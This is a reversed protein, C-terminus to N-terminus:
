CKLFHTILTLNETGKENLFIGKSNFNTYYM